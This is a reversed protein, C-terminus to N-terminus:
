EGLPDRFVLTKVGYAAYLNDPTLHNTRWYGAMGCSASAPVIGRLKAFTM